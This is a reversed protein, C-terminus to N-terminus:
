RRFRNLFFSFLKNIKEKATLQGFKYWKDNLARDLDEFLFILQDFVKDKALVAATVNMADLEADSPKLELLLANMKKIFDERYQYDLINLSGCYFDVRNLFAKRYKKLLNKELLFNYINLSIAPLDRRSSNISSMTSLERKRYFYLPSPDLVMVPEVVSFYKFLFEDDEHKIRQPFNVGNDVIDKRRYIKSWVTPSILNINKEDALVTEGAWDSGFPMTMITKKTIDDFYIAGFFGLDASHKEIKDMIKQYCNLDLYDDPDLFTIWEASANQIGTNRAAGVGQNVEHKIYKIRLDSKAYQLIVADSNDPSCDNVVIIELATLSQGVVSDLCERLYSEVNYVPIVVSLKPLM